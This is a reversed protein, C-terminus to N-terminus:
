FNSKIYILVVGPGPRLTPCYIRYNDLHLIDNFKKTVKILKNYLSKIESRVEM